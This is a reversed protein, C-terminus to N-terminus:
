APLPLACESLFNMAHHHSTAFKRELASVLKFDSMQNLVRYEVLILYRVRLKSKIWASVSELGHKDEPMQHMSRLCFFRM